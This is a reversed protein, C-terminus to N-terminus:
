ALASMDDTIDEPRFFKNKYLFTDRFEHPVYIKQSGSSGIKSIISLYVKNIKFVLRYLVEIIDEIRANISSLEGYRWSMYINTLQELFYAEKDNNLINRFCPIVNKEQDLLKNLDHCGYKKGNLRLISKILVEIYQHCSVLGSGVLSRQLAFRATIYQELAFDHLVPISDKSRVIHLFEKYTNM